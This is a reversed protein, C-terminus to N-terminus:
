VSIKERLVLAFAKAENKDNPWGRAQTEKGGFTTIVVTPIGSIGIYAIGTGFALVIFAIIKIILSDSFLLALIVPLLIALGGGISALLSKHQYFRVSVIEKLPIEESAGSSFLTKNSAFTIKKDSITGFKNSIINQDGSGRSM